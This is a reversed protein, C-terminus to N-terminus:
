LEDRRPGTADAGPSQNHGTWPQVSGQSIATIFAGVEEAAMGKGGSEPYPFFQGNHTNEVVLGRASQLGMARSMDAYEASDVTVFKLYEQYTKALPKMTNVYSARDSEDATFYYVLSKGPQRYKLETKRTLQPILLETCIELFRPIAGIRELKTESHQLGDINNYCAVKSAEHKAVDTLYGFTYRDRYMDATASFRRLLETDSEHLHAIFVFDDKTSFVGTEANSLKITTHQQRKFFSTIHTAKRPGRYRVMQQDGHYLRIAPFSAVDLEACLDRSTICDISKATVKDQIAAWEALLTKSPEHDPCGHCYIVEYRAIHPVAMRFYDARLILAHISESVVVFAVLTDERKVLVSRLEEASSHNWALTQRALLVIAPLYCKM